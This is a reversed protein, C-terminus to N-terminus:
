ASRLPPTAGHDPPPPALAQLFRRPADDYRYFITHQIGLQGLSLLIGASRPTLSTYLVVPIREARLGRIYEVPSRTSDALPDVLIATVPSWEVVHVLEVWTSAVRLQVRGHLARRVREEMERDSVIAAVFPAADPAVVVRRRVPVVRLARPEPPARPREDGRGPVVWRWCVWAGVVVIVMTVVLQSASVLLLLLAGVATVVVEVLPRNDLLTERRSPGPARRILPLVRARVTTRPRKWGLRPTVAAANPAPSHVLARWRELDSPDGGRYRREM